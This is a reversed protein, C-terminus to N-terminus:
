WVPSLTSGSWECWTAPTSKSTWSSGARKTPCSTKGTLPLLITSCRKRRDQLRRRRRPQHSHNLRDGHHSVDYEVKDERRSVCRPATQPADAPILWCESTVHTHTEITVFARSETMGVGVFFGSDPESYVLADDAVPTGLQHRHVSQPRHNDDLKTYFVTQNDRAWTFNGSTNEIVDPLLEGSDLNKFRITYYESGKDDVAYALIRHDHSHDAAGIRFYSLGTAMQDGHLLVQEDDGDSADRPRRCFIPHQGGTEYRSYYAWPGDPAPVTSDDEKIRGRYEVFLRNQLDETSALAKKLFANEAELYQRIDPDLVSPDKMVAQWNDAKLWAYPDTRTIGHLTSTTTREPARPPLASDTM